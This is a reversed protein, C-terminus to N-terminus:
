FRIANLMETKRANKHQIMREMSYQAMANKYDKDLHILDRYVQRVMMPKVPSM